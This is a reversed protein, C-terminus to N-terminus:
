GRRSVGGEKKFRIVNDVFGEIKQEHSVIIIQKANLEGLVERMKDLQAESFGDTPEDLIVLDKTNIKSMLSNIVQNLALRYALAVATREGGSLYAYDLVYDQQEIIPSFDDDLSVNFNEAVLMLFWESFVKSFDAKLKAMVNKEINEVVPVFKNSVWDELSIIYALQQKIQEIKLIREKLEQISKILMEIEKKSEAFKIEANRELKRAEDLEKQKEHFILDFSSLETVSSKLTEIQGKLMQIDKEFSININELDGLRLQKEKVGDLKIKLIKLETIQKEKINIDSEIKLIKERLTKKESELEEIKTKTHSIENHNKNLVNARYEADVSQLCTPCTELNSFKQAIKNADAIKLNLSAIESSIQLNKENLIEKENKLKRIESDIFLLQNEDFIIKSFEKIQENIQAITKKNTSITEEKSFIMIKVKDIEKEFRVKEEKKKTVSDLELQIHARIQRKANLDEEIVILNKKKEEVDKEKSVLLLKDQETNQTMAEKIKKEERLKASVTSANELIRKYKDVGFVHRLTNLRTEADELVVQKMEEQPTYVTFKYLLNQKKAFEGPYSLLELVKNKLGTVALEKLEGDITIASYDQTISNKGRKLNREIIVNQNNVELELKVSGDEAGNRLLSNGKHGPQLGFLGFEIALLITTKGSGIDGSLLISGEPFELEESLYSRINKLTLKKIIM